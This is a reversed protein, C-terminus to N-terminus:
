IPAGRATWSGMPGSAQQTVTAWKTRIAHATVPDRMIKEYVASDNALAYDPDYIWDRYKLANSLETAYRSYAGASGTPFLSSM